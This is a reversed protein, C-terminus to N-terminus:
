EPRNEQIYQRVYNVLDVLGQGIDIHTKPSYKLGIRPNYAYPTRIYHGAYNENRFEVKNSYGLIEELTHM